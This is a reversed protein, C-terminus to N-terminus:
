IKSSAAPETSYSYGTCVHCRNQNANFTVFLTGCCECILVKGSYVHFRPDGLITVGHPCKPLETSIPIDFPSVPLANTVGAGELDDLMQAMKSIIMMANHGDAGHAFDKAYLRAWEIQKRQREDFSDRWGM